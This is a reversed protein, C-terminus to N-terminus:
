LILKIKPIDQLDKIERLGQLGSEDIVAGINYSDMLEHYEAQANHLAEEFGSLEKQNDFVGLTIGEIDIEEGKLIKEAYEKLREPSLVTKDPLIPTLVVSTDTEGEELEMFDSKNYTSSYVTAYGDEFDTWGAQQMKEKTIEPRNTLDVDGKGFYEQMAKGYEEVKTKADSAGNAIKSLEDLIDDFNSWNVDYYQGIQIMMDSWEEATLHAFEQTTSLLSIIEPLNSNDLDFNLIGTNEDYDWTLLQQLEPIKDIVDDITKIFNETGEFLYNGDDDKKFWTERVAAWKAMADANENLSKTHDYIYGYEKAVDWVESESGAEGRSLKDKIFELAEGRTEYGENNNQGMAETLKDQALKARNITDALTGYKEITTDLADEPMNEVAEILQDISETSEGAAILSKKLEKLDDIFGKTQTKIAKNLNRSLGYFAKSSIDVGKALDPYKEILAMFDDMTFSGKDLSQLAEQYETIVASHSSIAKTYKTIDFKPDEVAFEGTQTFYGKINDLTIGFQKELGTFASSYDENALLNEIVEAPNKGSKVSSEFEKKFKQAVDTGTTSFIRDLVTSKGYDDNILAQQDLYDQHQRYFENWKKEAETTANEVYGIEGYKTQWTENISDIANNYKDVRNQAKEVDKELKKYEKSETRYTTNALKTQAEELDEKAKKLEDINEQYADVYVNKTSFDQGTLGMSGTTTNAVAASFISMFDIKQLDSDTQVAKLATEIQKNRARKEQASLIKEQRELEETQQKLRDLEEKEVFSLTGKANLEDIRKATNELESQVSKLESQVSKLEETEEELKKIYNEHTPGFKNYATILGIIAAAALTIWGVPTLALFKVLATIAGWISKALTVFTGTTFTNATGLGLTSVIAEKDAASLAGTAVAAELKALAEVKTIVVSEGEATVLGLTSVTAAAQETTLAGTNVLQGVMSASVSTNSASLKANAIAQKAATESGLTQTLILLQESEAVGNNMLIEVQKAASVSQIAQAYKTYEVTGSAVLNVVQKNAHQGMQADFISTVGNKVKTPVTDFMFNSLSFKKYKAYMGTFLGAIAVNLPNVLDVLRILHTGINVFFKIVDDNVFNMWMTQVANNFLDIRGQISDLYAANEKLASGEANLADNYAGELDKMNGLIAALTNARNKGAMLELLAAQDIDAMDEWVTGIEQLITYTDKYAGSDTLINVGTLAEIKKQMKSVSEVVGDTEEGMEELVSVSTGRLRLSITRLASGVSNPDQVVKNASAVLAVSQELTNGAEM